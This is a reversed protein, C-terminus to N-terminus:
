WRHGADIVVPDDSAAVDVPSRRDDKMISGMM